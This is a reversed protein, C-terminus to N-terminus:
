PVEVKIDTGDVVVKYHPVKAGPMMICQGTKLDYTWGHWPCTVHGEKDCEGESLPGGRHACVNGIAYYQGNCFFLAIQEGKVSIERGKGEELEGRKGVTILESM